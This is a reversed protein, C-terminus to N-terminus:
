SQDICESHENAKLINKSERGEFLGFHFDWNSLPLTWFPKHKGFFM